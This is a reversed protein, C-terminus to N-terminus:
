AGGCHQSRTLCTVSPESRRCWSNNNLLWNAAGEAGIYVGPYTPGTSAFWSSQSNAAAPLALIPTAVLFAKTSM